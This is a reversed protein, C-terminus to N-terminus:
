RPTVARTLLSEIQFTPLMTLDKNIEVLHIKYGEQSIGARLLGLMRPPAVLFLTAKRANELLPRLKECIAEAFAQEAQRHWDTQEVASRHSGMAVRGPRDTGSEHTPPNPPAEMVSVVQLNPHVADGKNAIFLAKSADCVVVHAEAPVPISSPM